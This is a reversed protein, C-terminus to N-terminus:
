NELKWLKGGEPMPEAGYAWLPKGETMNWNEYFRPEDKEIITLNTDQPNVEVHCVENFFSQIIWAAERFYEFRRTDHFVMKGGVSLMPWARQAFELRKSPVGDVFILDFTGGTFFDYPIFRPAIWDTHSILALNDKTREIWAPDTEVSTLGQPPSCQAFIQTSGGVGFELIAKSDCGLSWLMKADHISLDGVFELSM